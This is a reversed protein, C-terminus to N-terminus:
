VHDDPFLFKCVLCIFDQFLHFFHCRSVMLGTDACLIQQQRQCSHFVTNGSLDKMRVFHKRSFHVIQDLLQYRSMLLLHTGGSLSTRVAGSKLKNQLLSHVLRVAHLHIHGPRLMKKQRQHAINVTCRGLDQNGEIDIQFRDYAIDEADSTRIQLVILVHKALLIFRRLSLRSFVQSFVACIHCLASRLSLDIGDDAALILHLPDHLNQTPACFIVRTQDPLGAYPFGRDHFPKRKSDYCTINRGPHQSCTQQCQIQGSHQGPCFVAALKFLPQLRQDVFDTLVAIRDQEEVFHM